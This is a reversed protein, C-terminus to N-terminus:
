EQAGFVHDKCIIDNYFKTLKAAKSGVNLGRHTKYNLREMGENKDIFVDVVRLNTATRPGVTTQSVMTATSDLISSYRLPMDISLFTDATTITNLAVVDLDITAATGSTACYRLQGFNPGASAAFWIWQGDFTSAGVGTVQIEQTTASAAIAIGATAYQARYVAFPNVIAKIYCHGVTTTTNVAAAISPSDDTDKTELAIGIADVMQTAGATDPVGTVAGYTGSLMIAEGNVITAADYAIIDKIIPEAGCLDYVWKM